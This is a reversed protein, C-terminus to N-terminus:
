FECLGTVWTQEVPALMLPIRCIIEVVIVIGLKNQQLFSMSM